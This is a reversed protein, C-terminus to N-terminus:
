EKDSQDSRLSRLVDFQYIDEIKNPQINTGYKNNVIEILEETNNLESNLEDPMLSYLEGKHRVSLGTSPNLRNFDRFLKLPSLIDLKIMYKKPDEEKLKERIGPKDLANYTVEPLTHSLHDSPFLDYYETIKIDNLYLEAHFPFVESVARFILSNQEISDDTFVRSIGERIHDLTIVEDPGYIVPKPVFQDRDGTPRSSVASAIGIFSTDKENIIDVTEYRVPFFGTGGTLSVAMMTTILPSPSKIPSDEAFLRNALTFYDNRELIQLIPINSTRTLRFSESRYMNGTSIIFYRKDTEKAMEYINVALDRSEAFTLENVIVPIVPKDPFVKQIFPIQSEISFEANEKTSIHGKNSYEYLENKGALLQAADSDVFSKGLPSTYSEGKFISVTKEDIHEAPGIIIVGDFLSDAAYKYAKALVKGSKDYDYFPAFLGIAEYNVFEPENIDMVNIIFEELSDRDAPYKSGAFYHPRHSIDEAPLMDQANLGIAILALLAPLLIKKM